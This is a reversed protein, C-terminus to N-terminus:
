PVEGVNRDGAASRVIADIVRMNAVADELPIPVDTHDLVARSFLEVQREYQDCPEFSLERTTGDCQLRMTTPVDNPPNFPMDLEIRAHSGEVTVRQQREMQTSCTFSATGSDFELAGTTLRDTGFRPDVQMVGLVRVPERGFLYRAVSIGYCGIDMLAGGGATAMNRINAPDENDYSFHTHIALLPGLVGDLILERAAIWRPHCRYMFAEMVKLGPRGRAAALLLSAEEANMGVPKECLVHKGAAIARLTWPLHLHNPLPIYVADISADDLLAEYSGHAVPIGSRVALERAKVTDRSAIAVLDASPAAQLAPIVARTAINATGLM